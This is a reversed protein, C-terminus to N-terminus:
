RRPLFGPPSGATAAPRRAPRPPALGPQPGFAALFRDRFADMRWVPAEPGPKLGGDWGWGSIRDLVAPDHAVVTVPVDRSAHRGVVTSVPQHDGLFVLVTDEDGYERVYSILSRLSYAIARRYETRVRDPDQWVEQPDKGAKKLAHFVSGDGIEDWGVMRPIPAWPNHSSALIVLAMTPRRHPRGHELREFASLSFQDPVPTWSFEPGRYGLERSDYVHDLGYFEGEPWARTVGPMIGVTRWAGTRRFARSLTLRSSSTLTRYRQQNDIWLGSLLTSHALWSQAGTTPATLWASRAAFGADRLRRTGKGLVAGIEPAASPDELAHRGYSEIFTFIVDKGRLGTLLRDGPTGRFRDVAAAEAFEEKDRLGARVQDVRNGVLVANSRAALTVDGVRAGFSASVIWVTGLVLVAPAATARHRAAVSSLRVVALTTLALLLLAAVAVGTVTILAQTSGATGELFEQADDLLVWDLVLDFPRSLVAYFGMDVLKLLTLLGLALGGLVAAVRRTRARLLLLVALGLVAEGPLRVFAGPTLRLLRNPLLLAFLVLAAALATVTRATARRM